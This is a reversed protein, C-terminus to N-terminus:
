KRVIFIKGKLKPTDRIARESDRKIKAYSRSKNRNNNSDSVPPKDKEVIVYSKELSKLIKDIKKRNREELDKQIRSAYRKFSNESRHSVNTFARNASISKPLSTITSSTSHPIIANLIRERKGNQTNTRTYGVSTLSIEDQEIVYDIKKVKVNSVLREKLKTEIRIGNAMKEYSPSALKQKDDLNFLLSPAFDYKTEGLNLFKTTGIEVKTIKIISYDIPRIGEGYRQIGKDGGLPIMPQEFQIGDFPQMIIDTEEPVREALKVQQNQFDSSIITWNEVKFYETSIMEYTSVYGIQTDINENGWSINFNVKFSVFLIKFKAQGKANWKAPGSLSFELNISLLKWSRWRAEVGMRVDFIFHFPKFQFLCDFGFYGFLGVNDWGIKLDVQAGLQVTNSTIAFYSEFTLKVIKYDLKMGLRVLTGLNFSADPKFAPHFGGASLLFGKNKGWNLRFAIDGFLQIKVLESNVLSANFWMGKDFDIGGDFYVNIKVLAKEKTPLNIFLGGVILVQTPSPAQILLGFDVIIIEAYTIRALIGFFFQDRKIPFYSGIQTLMTDMHEEVDEVFFVSTVEGKRVGDQMVDKDIGRNLGIAGGLGTLSFGMGLQIGPTFYVSILGVFSFGKGGDPMKMTLLALAKVEVKELIKLYLVGLFEEKEPDYAIIGTGKVASADIFVAMGTPFGFTPSFEFDGLSGDAKLYNVNAGIKLNAVSFKVVAVDVTFSTTIMASISSDETDGPGILLGIKNLTFFDAIKINPNFDVKLSAAGDFKFGDSSDYLLAVDFKASIDESLLESFFSNIERIKLVITGEKAEGEYRFFFDSKKYGVSIMQPFDKISFDLYTSKIIDIPGATAKRSFTIDASTEISDTDDLWQFYKHSFFVGIAGEQFATKIKEPDTASENNLFAQLGFKIQHKQGLDFAKDLDGKLVPIMYIGTEFVGASIEKDAIFITLAAAFYSTSYEKKRTDYLNIYLFKNNTDLSYTPRYSPSPLTSAGSNEQPPIPPIEGGLVAKHEDKKTSASSAIIGDILEYLPRGLTIALDVGDQWKNIGEQSVDLIIPFVTNAFNKYIAPIEEILIKITRVEDKIRDLILVLLEQLKGKMIAEIVHIFPRLYSDIIEKALAKWTSILVESFFAIFSTELVKLDTGIVVGKFSAATSNSQNVIERLGQLSTSIFKDYYTEPNLPAATEKIKESIIKFYNILDFNSILANPALSTPNNLIKNTLEGLDHPINKTQKVFEAKLENEMEDAFKLHSFSRLEQETDTLVTSFNNAIKALLEKWEEETITGFNKYEKTKQLIVPLLIKEFSTSLQAKNLIKVTQIDKFFKKKQDSFESGLRDILKTAAISSDLMLDYIDGIEKNVESLLTSLELKLIASAEMAIRELMILFSKIVLIINEVQEKLTNDLSELIWKEMKELVGIFFDKISEFDIFDLGFARAVILIRKLLNEADERNKIPYRTKYYNIPNKAMEEFRDWHIVYIETSLTVGAVAPVAAFVQVKEKSIVQMFDLITYVRKFFEEIKLVSALNELQDRVAEVKPSITDKLVEKLIELVARLKKSVTKISEEFDKESDLIIEALLSIIQDIKDHSSTLLTSIESKLKRIDDAFIELANRLFVSIIHDFLRKPLQKELNSEKVLKKWQASQNELQINGLKKFAKILSVTNQIIAGVNGGLNDADGDGVQDDIFEFIDLSGGIADILATLKDTLFIIEATVDKVEEPITGGVDFGLFKILSDLYEIIFPIGEDNTDETPLKKKLDLILADKTKGLALAFKAFIDLTISKSDFTAQTTAVEGM